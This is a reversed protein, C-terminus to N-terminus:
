VPAVNSHRFSNLLNAILAVSVQVASTAKNGLRGHCRAPDSDNCKLTVEGHHSRSRQSLLAIPEQSHAPTHQLTEPSAAGEGLM